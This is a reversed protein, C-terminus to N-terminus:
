KELRIKGAENKEGDPTKEEKFVNKVAKKETKKLKRSSKKAFRPFLIYLM